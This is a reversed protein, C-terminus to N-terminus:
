APTVDQAARMEEATVEIGAELVRIREEARLVTIYLLRLKQQFLTEHFQLRWWQHRVADPPEVAADGEGPNAERWARKAAEIEFGMRGVSRNLDREVQAWATRDLILEEVPQEGHQAFGAERTHM